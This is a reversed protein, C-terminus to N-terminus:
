FGAVAGEALGKTLGGMCRLLSIWRILTTPPAFLVGHHHDKHPSNTPARRFRDVIGVM